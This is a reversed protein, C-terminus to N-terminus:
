VELETHGIDFGMVMELLMVRHYKTFGKQCLIDMLRIQHGSELYRNLPEINAFTAKYDSKTPTPLLTCDKEKTHIDLLSTQYLKGNQMMGSKPFTAYSKSLDEFLCLQVTKLSSMDLDLWGFLEGCKVGCGLASEKSVQWKERLASIRVHFDEVLSTWMDQLIPQQLTKYLQKLINSQYNEFECNWLTKIGAREAGIEFGGIGSFLSGHVLDSAM